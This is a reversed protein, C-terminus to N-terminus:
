ATPAPRRGDPWRLVFYVGEARPALSGWRTALRDVLLLGRGSERFFDGGPAVVHPVTPLRPPRTRVEARVGRTDVEVRIEYSGGPDGSRTHRLANTALESTVLEAREVVEDPVPAEPFARLCGVVFARAAAVSDPTGPFSTSSVSM